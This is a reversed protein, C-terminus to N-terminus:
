VPDYGVTKGPRVVGLDTDWANGDGVKSYQPTEEHSCRHTM